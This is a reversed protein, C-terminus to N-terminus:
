NLENSIDILNAISNYYNEKMSNQETSLRLYSINLSKETYASIDETLFNTISIRM